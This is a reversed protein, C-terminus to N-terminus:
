IIYQRIRYLTANPETDPPHPNNVWVPRSPSAASGSFRRSLMPYLNEFGTKEEEGQDRQGLARQGVTSGGDSETDRAVTFPM